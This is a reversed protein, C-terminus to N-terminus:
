IKGSRVLKTYKNVIYSTSVAGIVSRNTVQNKPLDKIQVASKAAKRGRFYKQMLKIPDEKKAPYLESNLKERAAV